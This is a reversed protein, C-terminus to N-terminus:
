RDSGAKRSWTKARLQYHKIYWNHSRARARIPSGQNDRRRTAKGSSKIPRRFMKWLHKVNTAMGDISKSARALVPRRKM